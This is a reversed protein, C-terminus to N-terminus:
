KTRIQINGNGTFSNSSYTIQQKDKNKLLSHIQLVRGYGIEKFALFM